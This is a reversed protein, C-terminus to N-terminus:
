DEKGASPAPTATSLRDPEQMWSRINDETAFHHCHRCQFLRPPYDQWETFEHRMGYYPGFPSWCRHDELFHIEITDSM